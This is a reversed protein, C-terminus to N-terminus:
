TAVNDINIGSSLQHMSTKIYLTDSTSSCRDLRVLWFTPSPMPSQKIPSVNMVEMIGLSARPINLQYPSRVVVIYAIASCHQIDNENRVQSHSGM